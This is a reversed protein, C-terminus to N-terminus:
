EFISHSIELLLRESSELPFAIRIAHPITQQCVTQDEDLCTSTIVITQEQQDASIPTHAPSNTVGSSPFLIRITRDTNPSLETSTITGQEATSPNCQVGISRSSVSNSVTKRNKSIEKTEQFSSDSHNDEETIEFSPRLKAHRRRLIARANNFWTTVQDYTISSQHALQM